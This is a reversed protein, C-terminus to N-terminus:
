KPWRQHVWFWQGPHERIWSELLANIATMISLADKADDGTRDYSLPPHIFVEFHAGCGRVVRAPIIPLDYRLALEAIAPATMADRGFFPVALGDNMKQDVLMCISQEKKLARALGFGGRPGKPIQHSAHNARLREIMKDVYPNNAHRYILTIGRGRRYPISPLLEWNSLHGSFFLAQKGPPPLREEGRVMVRDVLASGPLHPLEAAVRGLNDWMSRLIKKRADAPLEPLATQLNEQAVRHAKLCPGAARAMWGGIASAWDLPMTRFAAFLLWLAAAELLHRLRRM